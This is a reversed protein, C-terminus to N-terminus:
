SLLFSLLSFSRSTILRCFQFLHAPTFADERQFIVCNAGWKRRTLSLLASSLSNCVDCVGARSCVRGYACACAEIIININIIIGSLTLSLSASIFIYIPVIVNSVSFSLPIVGPSLSFVFLFLSPHRHLPDSTRSGHKIWGRLRVM